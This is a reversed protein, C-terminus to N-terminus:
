NEIEESSEEKFDETLKKAEEPAPKEEGFIEKEKEKQAPPKEDRKKEETREERAERRILSPSRPSRDLHETKKQFFTIYIIILVVVLITGLVIWKFYPSPVKEVIDPKIESLIENM